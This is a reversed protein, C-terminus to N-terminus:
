CIPHLEMKCLCEVCNCVDGLPMSERRDRKLFLEFHQCKACNCCFVACLHVGFSVSEFSWNTLHSMGLEGGATPCLHRTNKTLNEPMTNLMTSLWSLFLSVPWVPRKGNSFLCNFMSDSPVFNVNAGGPVAGLCACQFVNARTVTRQAFSPNGM